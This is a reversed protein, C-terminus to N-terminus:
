ATPQPTLVTFELGRGHQAADVAAQAESLVFTRPRLAALNLLGARALAALEGPGSRPGMFSGRVTLELALVTQYDLAVSASVGGVLVVTGGPRVASIGALVHDASDTLGVCDVMLDAGGGAEQLAHADAADGAGIVATVVRREDLQALEDLVPRNRGAVITRGAGLALAVLVAATGLNGTAGTVIVTQGARLGGKLLAGYAINLYNLCALRAVEVHDLGRLPTCCEAPYVAYEAFAGDRWVQQAGAAAPSLGFWGIILPAPERGPHDGPLYPDCFVRTGIQLGFVDEALADVVGVASSGFTYPTPLEFPFDGAQVVHSFPLVQAAEVRIRAGGSPTEPVKIRQIDLAEGAAPLRAALMQSM